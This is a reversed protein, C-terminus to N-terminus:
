QLLQLDRHRCFVCTHSFLSDDNRERHAGVAMILFAVLDLVILFRLSHQMPYKDLWRRKAFYRKNSRPM